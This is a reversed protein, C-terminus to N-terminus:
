ADLLAPAIMTTKLNTSKKSQRHEQMKFEIRDREHGEGLTHTSNALDSCDITVEVEKGGIAKSEFIDFGYLDSLIAGCSMPRVNKKPAMKETVSVAQM